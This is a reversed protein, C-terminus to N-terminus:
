ETSAKIEALEKNIAEELFENIQAEIKEQLDEPINGPSVPTINNNDDISYIDVAVSLTGDDEEKIFDGPPFAIFYNGIRFGDQKNQEM